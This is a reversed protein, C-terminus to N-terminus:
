FGARGRMKQNLVLALALGILFEITLAIAAYVFTHALASLFFQDSVLRAFNALTPNGSTTQFSIRVAYILPYITLALLVAVTPAILLYALGREPFNQRRINEAMM